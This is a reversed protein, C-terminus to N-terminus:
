ARWVKIMSGGQKQLYPQLMLEVARFTTVAPAGDAYEVEIVDVKERKAVRGVDPLLDGSIARLALEACANQVDAPVTNSPYYYAGLLNPPPTISSLNAFDTREVYARPWDLAQTASVRWGAWRSRYLQLMAGTAKRLMQERLTDNALAAWAANGRAAHYATADAVSIYSEANAIGSGDEVILSM